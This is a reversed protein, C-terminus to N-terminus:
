TKITYLMHTSPTNSCLNVLSYSGMGGQLKVYKSEANMITVQQLEIMIAFKVGQGGHMEMLEYLTGLDVGRHAQLVLMTNAIVFMSWFPSSSVSDFFLTSYMTPENLLDARIGV